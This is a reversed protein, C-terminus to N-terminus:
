DPILGEDSLLARVEAIGADPGPLVLDSAVLADEALPEGLRRVEALLAQLAATFASGDEADVASQLRDDLANLDDIRDDAVDFQGEDLIRIIV